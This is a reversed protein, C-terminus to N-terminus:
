YREDQLEKSLLDVIDKNFAIAEKKQSDSLLRKQSDNMLLAVIDQEVLEIIHLKQDYTM